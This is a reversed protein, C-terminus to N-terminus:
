PSYGPIRSEDVEDIQGPDLFQEAYRRYVKKRVFVDFLDPDIHGNLKFNGLIRLSESLTKGRKYPRDKATLAEFIDAIGMVRAQVSMQERTLGFPYGKGDMREHHGGAYEPVNKLHKPWPLANLMNITAKIHYNITEREEATLTGRSISLNEIEDETLLDATRGSVDVWKYGSGIQHVRAQAESSMSEGGTNCYRLFERDEELRRLKGRLAQEGEALKASLDSEHPDRQRALELSRRLLEIEADRKLVEFRTDVLDIRDFITQLKTAKDVVHVPTTVKGCDHLLGAIHLEYRDKESMTFDRLPGDSTDNVAEALMMTLEPVRKCHGGTYESKEDIAQNILQIFSEFLRALTEILEQKTLAIAAQSALSEALRQDSDSFAVIEGTEPDKSNILQLVGIIEGEHDRMPVTLFSKSHYGTKKDINRMGSFDFGEAVYADPINVTKGTLAAYCAVMRNNPEGDKGKLHLPYLTIPNGTTGGMAINLTENRMIAFRLRQGEDSQELRYLTGADARTIAKAALLIKELLRDNNKEQSLAAGIENLQELRRFLDEVTDL